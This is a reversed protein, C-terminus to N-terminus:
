RPAGKFNQDGPPSTSEKQMLRNLKGGVHGELDMAVFSFGFGRLLNAIDRRLSWARDM